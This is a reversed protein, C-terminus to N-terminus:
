CRLDRRRLCLCGSRRRRSDLRPLDQRQRRGWPGDHRLRGYSRQRRRRPAILHDQWGLASGWIPPRGVRDCRSTRRRDDRRPRGRDDSRGDYRNNRGGDRRRWRQRDDPRRRHATNSRWRGHNGDTRGRHDGRPNGSRGIDGPRHDRRRHHRRRLHRRGPGLLRSRIGPSHLRCCRCCREPSLRSRSGSV